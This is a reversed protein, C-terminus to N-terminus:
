SAFLRLIVFQSLDESPFLAHNESFTFFFADVEAHITFSLKELSTIILSLGSHHSPPLHIIYRYPGEAWSNKLIERIMM